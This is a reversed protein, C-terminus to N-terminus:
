PSYGITSNINIAGARIYNLSPGERLVPLARLTGGGVGPAGERGRGRERLLGLVPHSLRVGWEVLEAVRSPGEEVMVKVVEPRALGHGAALTDAMHLAPNDDPGLGVALGGRADNSSSDARLKKTLVPVRGTRAAKLVLTLGAIGTGVVAVYARVKPSSGM